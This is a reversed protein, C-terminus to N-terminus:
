FMVSPQVVVLEVLISDSRHLDHFDLYYLKGLHVLLWLLRPHREELIKIGKFINEM